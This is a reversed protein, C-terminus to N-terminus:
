NGNEKTGYQEGRKEFEQQQMVHDWSMESYKRVSTHHRWFRQGAYHIIRERQANGTIHSYATHNFDTPLELIHGACVKNFADQEPCGLRQTNLMDVVTPAIGDERMKALNMMVVGFNIYMPDASSKQRQREPVGALYYDSMDYNWLDSVNDNVVIDCDLSLIKDFCGFIDPFAARVMCMYTWANNFNPGKESFTQMALPKINVNEIIDPLEFPFTDDETLFIVKDVPTTALLSKASAVMNEYVNYTGCYVVVRQEDHNRASPHPQLPVPASHVTVPIAANIGAHRDLDGLWDNLTKGDNQLYYEKRHWNYSTQIFNLVETECEALITEIDSQLLQALIERHEIYFEIFKPPYEQQTGVKEGECIAFFQGVIAKTVARKYAMEKGRKSLEIALNMDRAFRSAEITSFALVSSFLGDRRYTKIYPYFDSTMSAIRWPDCEALVISNFIYEINWRSYEPFRIDNDMLFQRRYLKGHIDSFMPADVKNLYKQGTFWQSENVMKMWIIDYEDTPFNRMITDLSCVDTFHDDWDCFMVWQADSKELAFNRAHALGASTPTIIKQGIFPYNSFANDTEYEFEPGIQVITVSVKDMDACHQHQLIDFMPKGVEWPEDYHTIIINLLTKRNEIYSLSGLRNFNYYYILADSYGIHIDQNNQIKREFFEKDSGYPLDSFRDYDFMEKRWARCWVMVFMENASPKKVGRDKWVFSFDLVDIDKQKMLEDNLQEFAYEHVFYDDDDLFLIWKGKAYELGVNRALGDREVETTLMIVNDPRGDEGFMEDVFTMTDDTCSDMVIILEWDKFTQKLVSNIATKIRDAGNHTPLIISFFPNSM